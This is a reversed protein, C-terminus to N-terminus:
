KRVERYASIVLVIENPNGNLPEFKVVLECPRDAEDKCFWMFSDASASPMKKNDALRGRGQVLAVIVDASFKREPHDHLVHFTPVVRWADRRLKDFLTKADRLKM